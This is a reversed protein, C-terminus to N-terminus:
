EGTFGNFTHGLAIKFGQESSNKGMTEGDNGWQQRKTTEKNDRQQRKTTQQRNDERDDATERDDRIETWAGSGTTNCFVNTNGSPMLAM